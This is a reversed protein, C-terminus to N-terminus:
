ARRTAPWVPLVRAPGQRGGPPCAAAPRDRMWRAMAKLLSEPLRLASRTAEKTAAPWWPACAPVVPACFLTATPANRPNSSTGGLHHPNLPVQRRLGLREPVRRRRRHDLDAEFDQGRTQRGRAADWPRHGPPAASVPATTRSGARAGGAVV